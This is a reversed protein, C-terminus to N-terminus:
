TGAVRRPDRPRPRHPAHRPVEHHCPSRGGRGEGARPRRARRDRWALAAGARRRERGVPSARDRDRHAVAPSAPDSCRPARRRGQRSHIRECAGRLGEAGRDRGRRPFSAGATRPAAARARYGAARPRRRESRQLLRAAHRRRGRPPDRLCPGGQAGQRATSSSCTGSRDPGDDRWPRRPRPAEM